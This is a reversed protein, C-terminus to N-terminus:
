VWNLEFKLGYKHRSVGVRLQMAMLLYGVIFPHCFCLKQPYENISKNRFAFSHSFSQSFPHTIAFCCRSNRSLRRSARNANHLHHTRVGRVGRIGWFVEFVRVSFRSGRVWFGWLVVM